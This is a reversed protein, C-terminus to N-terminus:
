KGGSSLAPRREFFRTSNGALEDRLWGLTEQDDVDYWESAPYGCAQNRQASAHQHGRNKNRVRDASHEKHPGKLGILYYGGDSAPGLVM